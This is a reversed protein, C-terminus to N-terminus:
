GKGRGQNDSGGGGEITASFDDEAEAPRHFNWGHFGGDWTSLQTSGVM